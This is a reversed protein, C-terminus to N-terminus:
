QPGLRDALVRADPDGHVIAAQLRQRAAPLDKRALHVLAANYEIQGLVRATVASKRARAFDDLAEAHRGAQFLLIGRNLAADTFKPNLELARTDDRIASADDGLAQYALARNYYCEATRPALAIATSLAAVADPYRKLRYTCIGHYFYPWFEEPRLEVARRFEAEAQAHEGSRLHSRGLDYHEWATRPAPIELPAIDSRGLAAAYKRLDRSLATSAGFRTEADRLIQVAEALAGPQRGDHARLDALITALDVLDTRVQEATAPSVPVGPPIEFRDRAKWLEMGRALLTQADDPEPAMIGFRFRLLNVMTHLEDAHQARVARDLSSRLVSRRGDGAPLALARDLGARFAAIAEPYRDRRMLEDGAELAADIQRDRQKLQVMAVALAGALAGVACLWVLLRALAAPSRRRWKQWREILSRNHVGRLPLDGLHRRLDFAVAGADAYRDAADRALCKRVIDSLGPSVRPNVRALPRHEEGGGLAERLLVGLAFIDSRGDVAVLVRSGSRVAAIAAEQEPSLYGPTGGLREPAPQGAAIPERALHFDLLMPQGDGAILVNSPKVDLHVLGRDHAYQLADALCAGIWCMAQVYSAQKLYKRFPGRASPSEVTAAAGGPIAAACLDLAELLHKGTRDAPTVGNLTELVSALSAGGLYPMGLVRFNRDAYVQEIYLPVINMHQLRALSLHEARGMPTVKLVMLRDALSQQRALYTRGLAGRGIEALLQFDGLTSGAAPYDVQAAALFLGKCELLLGLQAQWQPFRAVFEATLSTEGQELRLCAEEFVIRLADETAAGPVQALFDEARPTEGREIAALMAELQRECQASQSPDLAM